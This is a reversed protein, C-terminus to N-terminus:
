VDKEFFYKTKIIELNSLFFEAKESQIARGGYRVEEYVQFFEDKVTWEMRHFWERVTESKTRDYDYLTAEVEFEKYKERLLSTDVLYLSQQANLQKEKRDEELEKNIYHIASPDASLTDPKNKLLLRIFFVIVIIALVFFIIEFPFGNGISESVIENPELETQEESQIRESEEPVKIELRSLLKDLYELLPIFPIIAISMVKGLLVDLGKRIFPFTFYLVTSLSAVSLLGLSFGGIVQSMSASNQKNTSVWVAYLRLAVPLVVGSIVVSYLPFIYNELGLIFCIFHVALFILFFNLNYNSEVTQEDQMKNFRIQIRWISIGAGLMFLWLPSNFLFLILLVSTPVIFPIIPNPGTRDMTIQMCIAIITQLILWLFPLEFTTEHQFIVLPLAVIWVDQIYKGLSQAQVKVNNTMIDM